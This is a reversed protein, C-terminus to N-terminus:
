DKNDDVHIRRELKILERLREAFGCQKYTAPVIPYSNCYNWAYEPCEKHGCTRQDPDFHAGSARRVASYMTLGDAIFTRFTEGHQALFPVESNVRHSLLVVRDPGEPLHFTVITFPPGFRQQLVDLMEQGTFQPQDMVTTLPPDKRETESWLRSATALVPHDIEGGFQVSVWFDLTLRHFSSCLLDGSSDPAAEFEIRDLLAQFLDHWRCPEQQAVFQRGPDTHLFGWCRALLEIFARTPHSTHFAANLLPLCLRMAVARDELFDATFKFLGLSSPNRKAWRALALPNATEGLPTGYFFEALSTACELMDIPSFTIVSDLEAPLEARSGGLKYSLRSAKFGAIGRVNLLELQPLLCEWQRHDPTLRALKGFAQFMIRMALHAYRYVFPLRMGQWFHYHEHFVIQRARPPLAAEIGEFAEGELGQVRNLESVLAPTVQEPSVHLFVVFLGLDVHSRVPM